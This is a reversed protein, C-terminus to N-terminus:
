FSFIFKNNKSIYPYIVTFKYFKFNISKKIFYIYFVQYISFYLTYDIFFLLEKSM